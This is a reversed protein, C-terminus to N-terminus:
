GNKDKKTALFHWLLTAIFVFVAAINILSVLLAVNALAHFYVAGVFTIITISVFFANYSLSFVRGGWIAAVMLHLAVPLGSQSFAVVGMDGFKDNNAFLFLAAWLVILCFGISFIFHQFRRRKIVTMATHGGTGAM